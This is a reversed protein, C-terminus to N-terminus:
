VVMYGWNVHLCTTGQSGDSKSQQVTARMSDQAESVRRGDKGDRSRHVAVESCSSSALVIWFSFCITQVNNSCSSM